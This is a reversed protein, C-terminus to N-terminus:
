IGVEKRIAERFELPRLDREIGTLALKLGRRPVGDMIESLEGLLKRDVRYFKDAVYPFTYKELVLKWEDEKRPVSLSPINKHHTIAGPFRVSSYGQKLAHLSLQTEIYSAFLSYTYAQFGRFLFGKLSMNVGAVALTKENNTHRARDVSLGTRTLYGVYGRFVPDIEEMYPTNKLLEYAQNPYNQWYKGSILGGAIGVEPHSQHFLIHEEIWKSGPCADDDTFLLIESSSRELILNYAEELLGDKQKYFEIDLKKAFAEVSERMEGKYVILIKFDRYTQAELCELLEELTSRLISPVAVTVDM